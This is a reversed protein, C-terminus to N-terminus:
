HQKNTLQETDKSNKGKNHAQLLAIGIYTNRVSKLIL